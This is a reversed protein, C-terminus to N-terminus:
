LYCTLATLYKNKTKQNLALVEVESNKFILLHEIKCNLHM